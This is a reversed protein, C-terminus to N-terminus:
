CIFKVLKFLLRGKLPAPLGGGATAAEVEAKLEAEKGEEEETTTAKAIAAAEDVVTLVYKKALQECCPRVGSGPPGVVVIRLPRLDRTQKFEEAIVKMNACPSCLCSAVLGFDAQAFMYQCVFYEGM